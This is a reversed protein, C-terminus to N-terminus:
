LVSTLDAPASSVSSPVIRVLSGAPLAAREDTIAARLSDAYVSRQEGEGLAGLLGQGLLLGTELSEVVIASAGAARLRQAHEPDRARAVVYPEAGL